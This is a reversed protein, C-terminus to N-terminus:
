RHYVGLANDNILDIGEKRFTDEEAYSTINADFVINKPNDLRYEPWAEISTSRNQWSNPDLDNIFSSWSSSIFAALEFHSEPLGQFPLIDPRNGVGLYNRFVYHIEKFHNSGLEPPVGHPIANFRYSYAPLGHAAWTAATKRRAAIFLYDGWYSASRRFQPGYPPGPRQDGLSAVVNVSLDDPYAEILSEQFSPPLNALSAKFENTTNIGRPSFSTGEDSNAGVIIPVRVFEGRQLQLSGFNRVLDGDIVPNTNGYQLYLDGLTSNLQAFPVQRLCEVQDLTANCGVASVLQNFIPQNKEPGSQPIYYIPNGSQLIAARFLNDNRGGYAVLHFGVSAAGASEGFITVKGADGGFAAINEQVWHLALRQDRLGINSLGQGVFENSNLFGWGHLRYNISIGIFPKGIKVSQDVIFSLNYRQDGGGGNVYGGGHIWLGVPLTQNSYGAPRVVNLTLCDESQNYFTQDLGYGVCLPSYDIAQKFGTWTDNLSQAQRFRLHGVPPQAYPVGLFFDQAYQPSHRGIYTGNTVRAIPDRPQTSIRCPLLSNM